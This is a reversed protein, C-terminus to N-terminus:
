WSRVDDEGKKRWLGHIGLGGKSIKVGQGVGGFENILIAGKVRDCAGSGIRVSIIHVHM